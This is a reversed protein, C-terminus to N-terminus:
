IYINKKNIGRVGNSLFYINGNINCIDCGFFLRCIYNNNNRCIINNRHYNALACLM